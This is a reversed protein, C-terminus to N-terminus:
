LDGPEGGQAGAAGGGGDPIGEGSRDDARDGGGGGPRAIRSSAFRVVAAVVYPRMWVCSSWRGYGLSLGPRGFVGRMRQRSAGAGGGRGTRRALLATSLTGGLLVVLAPVLLNRYDGVPLDVTVLDKWGTVAGLALERLAGLLGFPTSSPPSALTLGLLLFAGLAAGAVLWGRWEWVVSAVAIALALAVATVGLWVYWLDAYIPWAAWAAVLAMAAAYATGALFRSARLDRVSM